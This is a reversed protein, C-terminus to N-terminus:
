AATALPRAAAGRERRVYGQLFTRAEGNPFEVTIENGATARVTGLGFRPVRVTDGRAYERRPRKRMAQRLPAAPVRREARQERRCNDCTGCREGPLTEGFYELLVRWRCIGTQAYFVMRELKERDQLAKDAYGHALAEM